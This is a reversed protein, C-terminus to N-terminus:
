QPAIDEHPSPFKPVLRGASDRRFVLNRDAMFGSLWTVTMWAVLAGGLVDAPYHSHLILRSAGVALAFVLLPVRWRPWLLGVSLALGFAVATHGSPFSQYAYDFTFPQSELPGTTPRPRGVILKLVDNLLGSLAVSLGVFLTVWAWFRAAARRREGALVRSAYFALLLIVSLPYLYVDGRGFRTMWEGLDSLWPPVGRLALAIPRDLYVALFRIVALTVVTVVLPRTALDPLRM